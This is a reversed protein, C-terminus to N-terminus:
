PRALTQVFEMAIADIENDRLPVDGIEGSITIKGEPLNPMIALGGADTETAAPDLKGLRFYIAPKGANNRLTGGAVPSENCDTVQVLAFPANEDIELDGAFADVTEQTLMRVELFSDGVIPIGPYATTALFMPPLEARVKNDTPGGATEYTYEFIGEANSTVETLPLDGITANIKVDPLPANAALNIVLGTTKLSRPEGDQLEVGACSVDPALQKEEILCGTLLVLGLVRM